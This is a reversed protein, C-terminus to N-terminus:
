TLAVDNMVSGRPRSAPARHTGARRGRGRRLPEADNPHALRVAADGCRRGFRAGDRVLRRRSPVHAPQRPRHRSDRRTAGVDPDRRQHDHAQRPWRAVASAAQALKHRARLRLYRELSTGTKAGFPLIRLRDGKGHVTVHDARMDLDTLKIGCMEAVRMGTDIFLRVMAEDRRDAFEKGQCAAILARLDDDSLVPVPKETPKPARLGAMPNRDIWEESVLWGYFQQLSKFRVSATTPSNTTILYIM